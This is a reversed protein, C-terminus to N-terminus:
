RQESGTALRDRPAWKGLLREAGAGRKGVLVSPHRVRTNDHCRNGTIRARSSVIRMGDRALSLDTDEIVLDKSKSAFLGHVRNGCGVVTVGSVCGTDVNQLWILGWNVPTEDESPGYPESDPLARFVMQAERADVTFGSLAIDQVDTAKIVPGDGHFKLVAGAGRLTIGNSVVLSSSGEYLGPQLVVTTGPAADALASVIGAWGDDVSITLEM